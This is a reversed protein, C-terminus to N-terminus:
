KKEENKIDKLIGFAFYVVIIAGLIICIWM